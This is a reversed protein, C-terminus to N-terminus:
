GRAEIASWYREVEQDKAFSLTLIGTVLALINLGLIDIIQIIALANGPRPAQPTSSLLKSGRVIEIIGLTMQLAPWVIFICGLGATMAGLGMVITLGWLAGFTNLIGDILCLVGIATVKGPKKPIEKSGYNQPGRAGPPPFLPNAMPAPRPMRAMPQQVMPQQPTTGPWPMACQKGLSVPTQPDIRTAASIRIGSVWTGNSSGLDEVWWNGQSQFLRCHRSSVTPSSVRVDCSPDTGIIWSAVQGGQRLSEGCQDCFASGDMNAMGCKICVISM